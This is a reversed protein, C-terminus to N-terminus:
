TEKVVFHRKLDDKNDAWKGDWSIEIRLPKSEAEIGRAQLTLAIRIPEGYVDPVQGPVIPTLRVELPEKLIHCLDCESSYGVKKPQPNSEHRWGLPCRGVWSPIFNGAADRVEISLIFIYLDTVPNWRTRNEVSVHYWFGPTQHLQKGTAKDFIWLNSSYGESSVLSVTLTPPWIWNRLWAGFLAVFVALFTAVTGLAKITFDTWYQWLPTQM